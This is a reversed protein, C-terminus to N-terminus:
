DKPTVLVYYGESDWLKDSKFWAKNGIGLVSVIKFNEHIYNLFAASAKKTFFSIQYRDQYPWRKTFIQDKPDLGQNWLTDRIAYVIHLEKGEDESIFYSGIGIPGDGGTFKHQNKRFVEKNAERKEYTNWDPYKNWWTSKWMDSPYMQLRNQDDVYYHRYRYGREERSKEELDVEGDFFEVPSSYYHNVLSKSDNWMQVFESRVENINRGVQKKLWKNIYQYNPYAGEAKADYGYQRRAGMSKKSGTPIEDLEDYDTTTRILHQMQAESMMHKPKTVWKKSSHRQGIM